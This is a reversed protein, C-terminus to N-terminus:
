AFDCLLVVNRTVMEVIQGRRRAKEALNDAAQACGAQRSFFVTVPPADHDLLRETAIQLRCTGQVGLDLLHEVLVLNIADVMVESFFGYLVQHHKAEAVSDELGYPITAVDVMHPDRSGFGDAYFLTAAIVVSGAGQAVHNGVVQEM